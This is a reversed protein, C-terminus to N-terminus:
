KNNLVHSVLTWILTGAVGTVLAYLAYVSNRLIKLAENTDKETEALAREVVIKDAKDVIVALAEKDAKASAIAHFQSTSLEVAALRADHKLCNSSSGNAISQVAERMIRIETLFEAKLVAMDIKLSAVDVEMAHLRQHAADAHISPQNLEEPM